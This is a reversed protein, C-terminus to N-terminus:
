FFQGKGFTPVPAVKAGIQRRYGPINDNQESIAPLRAAPFILYRMCFVIRIMPMSGPSRRVPQPTISVNPFLRRKTAEPVTVESPSM